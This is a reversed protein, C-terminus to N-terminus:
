RRRRRRSDPSKIPPLLKSAAFSRPADRMESNNKIVSDSYRTHALQMVRIAAAIGSGPRSCRGRAYGAALSRWARRLLSSEFNCEIGSMVRTRAIVNAFIDRQQGAPRCKRRTNNEAWNFRKSHLLLLLRWRHDIVCRPRVALLVVVLNM